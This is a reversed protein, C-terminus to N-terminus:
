RVCMAAFDRIFVPHLRLCGVRKSLLLTDAGEFLPAWPAQNRMIAADLRSFARFRAPGTLADAAALRRNYGPNDFYAFNTNGSTGRANAGALLRVLMMAPDPYMGPFGPPFGALIMDYPEGPVGARADIVEVAMPRVTVDLGIERLNRVVVNAQDLTGPRTSSYLVAKGGRLNGAALERARALDPRAIRYIQYDRWGPIWRPVIQDTPTFWLSSAGARRVIEARDVALNVAKRLPVNDRFLPRSTNLVLADTTTGRIRFFQRKNIGYRQALADRDYRSIEIGLVDARGAEVAQIDSDLDGGYSIVIRGVRHPRMGRYYPNRDLVLMGSPDQRAIYYPGSGILLDVGAPDVPFRLPVPCALPLALRTALDGSPKKLRIRLRRGSASLQRVDSFLFAGDSQMAPDLVRRLALAFNAATLPSGDSFRLGSRVTFVYTRRDRSIRPPAAAAEPRVHFGAAGAADPFAMLTACTAYWRAYSVPRALAPDLTRPPLPTIVRLTGGGARPVAAARGSADGVALALVAGSMVLMVAPRRPAVWRTYAALNRWEDPSLVPDEV